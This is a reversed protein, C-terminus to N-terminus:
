MLIAAKISKCLSRIGVSFVQVVRTSSLVDRSIMQDVQPDGSSSATTVLYRMDPTVNPSLFSVLITCTSNQWQVSHIEVKKKQQHDEKKKVRFPLLVVFCCLLNATKWDWGRIAWFRKTYAATKRSGSHSYHRGYGM